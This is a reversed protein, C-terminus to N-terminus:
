RGRAGAAQATPCPWLFVDYSRNYPDYDGKCTACFGLNDRPHLALVQARLAELESPMENEPEPKPQASEWEVYTEDSIVGLHLLVWMTQDWSKFTVGRDDVYVTAPLKRSTVLVTTRDRWFPVLLAPDRVSQEAIAPVGYVRLWAAVADLDRRATFVVVPGAALVANLADIAGEVPPDYIEGGNWGRSYKHIPGDFDIAITM